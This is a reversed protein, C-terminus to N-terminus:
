QLNTLEELDPNKCCKEIELVVHTEVTYIPTGSYLNTTISLLPFTTPNVM